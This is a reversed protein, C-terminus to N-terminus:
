SQYMCLQYEYLTVPRLKRSQHTCIGLICFFNQSICQIFPVQCCQSLIVKEGSLVFSGLICTVKMNFCQQANMFHIFMHKKIMDSASSESSISSSFLCTEDSFLDPLYSKLLFKEKYFHRKVNSFFFEAPQRRFFPSHHFNASASLNIQETKKDAVKNASPLWRIKEEGLIITLHFRTQFDFSIVFVEPTTCTLLDKEKFFIFLQYYTQQMFLLYM